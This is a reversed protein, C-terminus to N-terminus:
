DALGAEIMPMVLDVALTAASVDAFASGSARPNNMVDELPPDLSVPPRLSWATGGDSGSLSRIIHMIYLLTSPQRYARWMSNAVHREQPEVDHTQKYMSQAAGNLDGDKKERETAALAIGAAQRQSKSKAPMISVEILAALRSGLPERSEHSCDFAARSMGI